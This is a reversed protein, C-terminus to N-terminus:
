RFAKLADYADVPQESRQAVAQRRLAAGQQDVNDKTWLPEWVALALADYRDPSRGIKKRIVDKPTVKSRGSVQTHWEFEHLEDELKDDPPIAGGDRMWRELNAALVDRLRDYLEGQRIARESAKVGVLDFADGAGRHARARGYLEAGISGERDIVWVPREGEHAHDNHTRQLELLHREISLGRFTRLELAKFGRRVCIATEDGQGTEGAPDCGIFLRGRAEVEHWRLQAAEIAALSFIKGDEGVPFGGAVRVIWKPSDEGWELRRGEIYDYEALGPIVKRRQQYNPTEWSPIQITNWYEKQSHFANFFYGSTRTGNSFMALRAGGARNGEIADWIPDPVGSGEDVLFMLNRGSIGAVAEAERATFGSVQNFGNRLGTRALGGLTGEVLQSHPCPKPIKEDAEFQSVGAAIMDEYEKRCPVCRGSNRVLICIERWIVSDVQRSTTSSCIARAAEFSDYFWLGAVGICGTKGIKQGSVVATRPNDRISELIEIQRSWPEVGLVNRAYGVPDDRYRYAPKYTIPSEVTLSSLYSELDDVILSRDGYARRRRDLEDRRSTTM